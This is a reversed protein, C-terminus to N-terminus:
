IIRFWHVEDAQGNFHDRPCPPLDESTRDIVEEKVEVICIPVGDEIVFCFRSLVAGM